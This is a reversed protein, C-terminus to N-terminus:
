CIKIASIRGVVALSSGSNQYAQLYLTEGNTSRVDFARCITYTGSVASTIDFAQLSINAGSDSTLSLCARRDGTANSAFRVSFWVLWLGSDLDISAVDKWSASAVSLESPTQISTIGTQSLDGNPTIIDGNFEADWDVRLGAKEVVGGFRARDNKLGFSIGTVSSVIITYTASNGLDDEIYGQLDYSFAIDVNGGGFVNSWTDSTVNSVGVVYTSDTHKKYKISNRMTNSGVQSWAFKIKARLYTGTVDDFTEDSQCRSGSMATISPPSYPTVSISVTATGTRGRSDKVTLTFTLSGSSEFVSALYELSSVNGTQSYNVGSGTISYSAVTAGTGAAFSANFRPKTYRQLAIDWSNVTANDNVKTLTFSSIAPKVSSAVSVTFTKSDSGILTSGNYTLLRVTAIGSTANPIQNLWTNPITYTYSTGTVAIEGSNVSGFEFKIKRTFTSSYNTWNVTTTSGINANSVSNIKSASFDYNIVFSFATLNIYHSSSYSSSTKAPVDEAYYVCFWRYGAKLQNLLWTIQASTLSASSSGTSALELEIYGGDTDLFSNGSVNDYTSKKSRYLRFVRGRISTASISCSNIYKDSWNVNSLSSIGIVGVTETFDDSLSNRVWAQTASDASWRANRTKIQGSLHSAAFTTTTAM